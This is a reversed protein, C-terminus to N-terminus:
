VHWFRPLFRLGRWERAYELAFDIELSASRVRKPWTTKDLKATRKM